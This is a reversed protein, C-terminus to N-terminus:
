KRFRAGRRREVVSEYVHKAAVGRLDRGAVKFIQVARQADEVIRDRTAPILRSRTASSTSSTTPARPASSACRRTRHPGVDAHGVAARDPEGRRDALRRDAQRGLARDRAGPVEPVQPERGLRGGGRPRDRRVGQPDEAGRGALAATQEAVFEQMQNIM